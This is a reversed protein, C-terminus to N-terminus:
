PAQAPGWRNMNLYSLLTYEYRLQLKMTEYM